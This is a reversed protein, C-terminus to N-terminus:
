MSPDSSTKKSKELIDTQSNLLDMEYSLVDVMAQIIIEKNPSDKLQEKLSAYQNELENLDQFFQNKLEPNKSVISNWKEKKDVIDQSFNVLRANQIAEQPLESLFQNDTSGKSSAFWYGLGFCLLVSAAIGTIKWWVFVQKKPKQPALKHNIAEWVEKSPVDEFAELNNKILEQIKM